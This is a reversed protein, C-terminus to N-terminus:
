FVPRWTEYSQIAHLASDSNTGACSRSHAVVLSIIESEIALAANDRLKTNLNDFDRFLTATVLATAPVSADNQDRTLLSYKSNRGLLYHPM